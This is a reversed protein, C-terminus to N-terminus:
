PRVINDVSFFCLFVGIYLGLICDLLAATKSDCHGKQIKFSKKFFGFKMARDDGSM